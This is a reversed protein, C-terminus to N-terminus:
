ANPDEVWNPVQTLLSAWEPDGSPIMADFNLSTDNTQGPFGFAPADPPTSAFDFKLSRLEDSTPSVSEDVAM